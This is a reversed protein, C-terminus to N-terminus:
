PIAIPKAVRLYLLSTKRGPKSLYGRVALSRHYGHAQSSAPTPMPFYSGENAFLRPLTGLLASNSATNDSNQLCIWKEYQCYERPSYIMRDTYNKNGPGYFSRKSQDFLQVKGPRQPDGYINKNTTAPSQHDSSPDLITLDSSNLIKQIPIVDGNAPIWEVKGIGICPYTDGNVQDGVKYNKEKSISRCHGLGLPKDNDAIMSAYRVAQKVRDGRAATGKEGSLYNEWAAIGANPDSNSKYLFPQTYPQWDVAGSLIPASLAAPWMLVLIITVYSTYYSSNKTKIELKTPAKKSFLKRFPGTVEAPRLLKWSVMSNIQRLDIDGKEMLLFACRWAVTSSWSTIPLRLVTLAGSIISTISSVSLWTTTWGAIDPYLDSRAIRNPLLILVAATIATSLLLHVLLLYNALLPKLIPKEYPRYATTLHHDARLIM